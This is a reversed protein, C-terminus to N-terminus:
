GPVSPAIEVEDFDKIAKFIPNPPTDDNLVLVTKLGATAAAALEISADSFFVIRDPEVGIANAIAQYSRADVKLGITTDFHETFLQRLDGAASFEFFLLQAQVSGSSYVYLPVGATRWRRLAVLADAFIPSCFAGSRFGSEWILGQITKLPPAKVDRAHWDVLAAVPDAGDALSAAQELAGQVIPDGRHSAVFALLRESSYPFLVDRVFSLPSITGEIDLLVADADIRKQPDAADVRAEDAILNSAPIM